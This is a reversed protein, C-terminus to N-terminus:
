DDIKVTIFKLVDEIIRYIRELEAIDKSNAKFKIIIYYAQKNNKIEYALKKLGKEEISEITVIKKIKKLVDELMKKYEDEKCNKILFISEYKNM